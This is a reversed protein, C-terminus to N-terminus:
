ECSYTLSLNFRDTPPASKYFVNEYIMFLLPCNLPSTSMVPNFENILVKRLESFFYMFHFEMQIACFMYSCLAPSYVATNSNYKGEADISWEDTSM